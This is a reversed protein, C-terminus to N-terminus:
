NKPRLTPFYIVERINAVDGLLMALRDIGIGVGGSPPLGYELAEIFDEDLKQGDNDGARRMEEQRALRARQELPDNLESFAKVLELGGAVLQFADVLTPDDERAKALPLYDRPYDVVFTPQILKPRCVKKYILDFIKERSSGSEFVLGLQHAKVVLEEDRVTVPDTILAYRKLLDYYTVSKFKEAFNIVEGQYKVELEGATKKIVFRLLKEVQERQAAADSWAEYFELMTFEPNHTLDIGENRFNRSLEYVRPLGGVVMRKLYLEPSIRLFLDVDLAQHHTVFPEASAGGALTQLMPTEVEVFGAKDLFARTASIMKARRVFREKVVPEMLSDLYRRRFREEVDQLGHWKDPLPRLSKALPRWKKVLLTKEERRKTLFLEGSVEVIDGVDVTDAFFDTEEEGLEDRRLLIQLRGTGDDLDFFIMAGQARLAMIRGSLVLSKGATTLDAFDAIVEGLDRDHTARIPYPILGKEHWRELKKIREQRITDLSAM